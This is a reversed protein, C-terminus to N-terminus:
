DWEPEDDDSITNVASTSIMNSVHQGQQRRWQRRKGINEWNNVVVDNGNEDTVVVTDSYANIAHRNNITDYGSRHARRTLEVEAENLDVMLIQKMLSPTKPDNLIEEKSRRKIMGMTTRPDRTAFYDADEQSVNRNSKDVHISQIKSPRPTNNNREMYIEIDHNM